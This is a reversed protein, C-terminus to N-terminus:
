ALQFKVIQYFAWKVKELIENDFEPDLRCNEVSRKAQSQNWFHKMEEYLIFGNDFSILM